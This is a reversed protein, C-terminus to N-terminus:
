FLFTGDSAVEMRSEQLIIVVFSYHDFSTLQKNTEILENLYIEQTKSYDATPKYEPVVIECVQTKFRFFILSSKKNKVIKSWVVFDFTTNGRMNDPISKIQKLKMMEEFSLGYSRGEILAQDNVGAIKARQLENASFLKTVDTEEERNTKKDFKPIVNLVQLVEIILVIMLGFSAM